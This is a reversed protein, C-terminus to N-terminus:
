VEEVFCPRLSEGFHRESTAAEYYKHFRKEDTKAYTAEVLWQADRFLEM